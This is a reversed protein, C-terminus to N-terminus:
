EYLNEGRLLIMAYEPHDRCEPCVKDPNTSCPFETWPATWSGEKRQVEVGCLAVMSPQTFDNWCMYEEATIIHIAM